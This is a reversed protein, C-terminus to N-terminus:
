SITLPSIIINFRAIKKERGTLLCNFGHGVQRFRFLLSKKQRDFCWGRYYSASRKLYRELSFQELKWEKVTGNCCAGSETIEARKKISDKKLVIFCFPSFWIDKSSWIVFLPFETDMVESCYSVSIIFQLGSCPRICVFAALSHEWWIELRKKCEEPWVWGWDMLKPPNKIVDCVNCFLGPFTFVLVIYRWCFLKRFQLFLYM